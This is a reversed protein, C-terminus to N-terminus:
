LDTTENGVAITQSFEFLRGHHLRYICLGFFLGQVRRETTPVQFPRWHGSDLLSDDGRPCSKESWSLVRLDILVPVLCLVV